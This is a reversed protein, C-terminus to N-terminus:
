ASHRFVIVRNTKNKTTLQEYNILLETKFLMAKKIFLVNLMWSLGFVVLVGVIIDDGM